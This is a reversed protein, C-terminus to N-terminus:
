VYARIILLRYRSLCLSYLPQRSLLDRNFKRAMSIVPHLRSPLSCLFHSARAGCLAALLGRDILGIWIGAMGFAVTAAPPKGVLLLSNSLLKGRQADSKLSMGIKEGSM